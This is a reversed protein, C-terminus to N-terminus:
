QKATELAPRAKRPTAKSAQNKGATRSAHAELKGLISELKQREDDSLAEVLDTEWQLALPAIREFLQSGARTLQLESIRADTTNPSRRLLGREELSSVTRSVMVKDLNGHQAIQKASMNPREHLLALTRWQPVSVDFRQRYVGALSVSIHKALRDFRYPLFGELQFLQKM